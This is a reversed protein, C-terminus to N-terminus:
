GASEVTTSGGDGRADGHDGWGARAWEVKQEPKNVALQSSVSDYIVVCHAKGDASRVEWTLYTLPRALVELDDPLM